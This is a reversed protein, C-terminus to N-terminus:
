DGEDEFKPKLRLLAQDRLMGIYRISYGMEKAVATLTWGEFYILRLVKREKWPLTKVFKRLAEGIQKRISLQEGTKTETLSEPVGFDTQEKDDLSKTNQFRAANRNIEDLMSWQIRKGAYVDFRMGASRMYERCALFVGLRGAAELDEIEINGGFRAAYKKAMMSIYSYYRPVEVDPDKEEEDDEVLFHAIYMPRMRLASVFVKCEM